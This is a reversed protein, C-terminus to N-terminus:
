RSKNIDEMVLEGNVVCERMSMDEEIVEIWM